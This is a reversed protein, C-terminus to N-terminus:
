AEPGRVHDGAEAFQFLVNTDRLRRDGYGLQTGHQWFHVM